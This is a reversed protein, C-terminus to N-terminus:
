LNKGKYTKGKKVNKGKKGKLYEFEFDFDFDM